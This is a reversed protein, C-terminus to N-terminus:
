AHSHTKKESEAVFQTFDLGLISFLLAIRYASLKTGMREFRSLDTQAIGAKVAIDKQTLGAKDRLTRFQSGLWQYFETENKINEM